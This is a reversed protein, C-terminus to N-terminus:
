TLQSKIHDIEPTVDVPYDLSELQLLTKRLFQQHRTSAPHFPRHSLSSKIVKWMKLFELAQNDFYAKSFKEWIYDEAKSSLHLMDPAYFRYDRLDDLILEYSPFYSVRDYEQDVSHCALRLTAKSVQNLELSDRLHRVPSVTLILRIGPNIEMLVQYFQDFGKLIQKRSLLLKDFQDAPIKHCNAVIEGNDIRQYVWATGFSLVLWHCEGLFNHVRNIRHEVETKLVERDMASAASHLFYNFFVEERQGYSDLPPYTKSLAFQLLKLISVPNFIVGFPNCLSPFKSELLRNGIVDAFCSGITLTSAELTVKNTSPKPNLETRFM